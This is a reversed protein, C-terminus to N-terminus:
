PPRSRAPHEIFSRPRPRIPPRHVGCYRHASPRADRIPDSRAVPPGPAPTACPARLDTGRSTDTAKPRRRGLAVSLAIPNDQRDRYFGRTHHSLRGGNVDLYEHRTRPDAARKMGYDIPGRHHTYDIVRGTWGLGVSAAVGALYPSPDDGHQYAHVHWGTGAPNAEVHWDHQYRVGKARLKEALRNMQRQTTRYNGTVGTLLIMREPKARMIAYGRARIEKLICYDCSVRRCRNPVLQGTRRDLWSGVSNPCSDGPLDRVRSVLSTDASTAPPQPLVLREAELVGATAQM